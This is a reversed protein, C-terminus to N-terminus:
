FDIFSEDQRKNHSLIGNAWFLHGRLMSVVLKRAPFRLERKTAVPVMGQRTVVLEGVTLEALPIKGRDTYIPHDPTATLLRGDSLTTEIWDHNQKAILRMPHTLPVIVTGELVCGGVTPRTPAGSTGPIQQAPVIPFDDTTFKRSTVSLRSPDLRSTVQFRALRQDQEEERLAGRALIEVEQNIGLLLLKVTCQAGDFAKSRLLDGITLDVNLLEIETSDAELTRTLRIPGVSNLYPQYAQGLFTIAEQAYHKVTSDLLTLKVAWRTPGVYTKAAASLGRSM